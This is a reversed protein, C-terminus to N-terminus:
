SIKLCGSLMELILSNVLWQCDVKTLAFRCRPWDYCTQEVSPSRSPNWLAEGSRWWQSPLRDKLVLLPWAKGTEARPPPPHPHLTKPRELCINSSRVLRLFARTMTMSCLRNGFGANPLVGSDGPSVPM